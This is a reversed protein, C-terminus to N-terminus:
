GVSIDVFKRSALPRTMHVWDVGNIVPGIELFKDGEEGKAFAEAM